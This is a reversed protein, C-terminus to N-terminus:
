CLSVRDTQRAAETGIVTGGTVAGSIEPVGAVDPQEDSWGLMEHAAKHERETGSSASACRYETQRAAEAGIVAGGTVAGALM